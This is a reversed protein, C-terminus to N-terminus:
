YYKYFVNNESLVGSDRPLASHMRDGWTTNARLILLLLDKKTDAILYEEELCSVERSLHLLLQLSCTQLGRDCIM